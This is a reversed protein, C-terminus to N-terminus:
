GHYELDVDIIEKRSHHQRTLKHGFFVTQEPKPFHLFICHNLYFHCPSAIASAWSSYVDYWGM